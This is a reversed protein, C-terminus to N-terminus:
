GTAHGIGIVRKGVLIGKGQPSEFACRQGFEDRCGFGLVTRYGLGLDALLARNEAFSAVPSTM